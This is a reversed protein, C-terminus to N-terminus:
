RSRHTVRREREAWRVYEEWKWTSLFREAAMWGRQFLWRKRKLNMDFETTGADGVPVSITRHRYDGPRVFRRDHAKLMTQFMAELYSVLGSIQHHREDKTGEKLLIGFTPWRPTTGSDFTWIPFNSLIGGDAFYVDHGEHEMVVPRFFIPLAMSCRVAWAVEVNDPHMGYMAAGEPLAVLRGNTIDATYVTLAYHGNAHLDGFREIGRAALLLKFYDYFKEGKYIGRHYALNLTKRGWGNGDLFIDFPLDYIIDRLEKPDYGMLGAAVIAGASTGALRYPTFGSQELAAAAGILGPLKTGGGEFVGDYRRPGPLEDATLRPM